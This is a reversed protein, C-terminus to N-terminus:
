TAQQIRQDVAHVTPLGDQDVLKGREAYSTSIESPVGSVVDRAVAIVQAPSYRRSAEHVNLHVVSYTKSGMGHAVRKGFADQIAPLYPKFGDSSIEPLGLM